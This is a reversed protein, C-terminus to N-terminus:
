NISVQEGPFDLSFAPIDVDFLNGRESQITYRGVMIGSSTELPCGSTYQYSDGPELVPQEGVVGEGRIEQMRGIGDTIHWYRSILKVTEASNNAITVQYAWVFRNEEPDSHDSLFFPEVSVEIDHTVARYM